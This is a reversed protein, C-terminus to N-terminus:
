KLTKLERNHFYVFLNLWNVVHKLKCKKKRCPFYDDFSETRDKIYQVTREIISKEYSSHVHHEVRLFRCAQPYWTGGDTSIPHGDYHKILSSIFREAVCINRESSINIGLIGKSGVEIAVWLWVYEPGVKLVTEGIVYKLGRKRQHFKLTISKYGTGSIYV